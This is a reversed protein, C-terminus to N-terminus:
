ILRYCTFLDSRRNARPQNSGHVLKRPQLVEDIAANIDIKSVQTKPKVTSSLQVDVRLDETTPLDIQTLSPELGNGTLEEPLPKTQARRSDNRLLKKLQSGPFPDTRNTSAEIFSGLDRKASKAPKAKAASKDQSASARMAFGCRPCSALGVDHLSFVQKCQHYQIVRGEQTQWDFILAAIKM